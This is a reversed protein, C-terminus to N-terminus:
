KTWYISYDVFMNRTLDIVKSKKFQGSTYHQYQNFSQYLVGLQDDQNKLLTQSVYKFVFRSVMMGAIITPNIAMQMINFLNEVFEDYESDQTIGDIMSGFSRIDDDIEMVLLSWNFAKPIRSSTYLAYGVDEGFDFIHGDKVYHVEMLTRTALTTNIVGRLFAKKAAPDTMKMYDDMVPINVGEGTVFSLIKAEGSGIWERNDLIEIRHLNFYFNSM